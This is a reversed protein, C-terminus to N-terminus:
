STVYYALLNKAYKKVLRALRHGTCAQKKLISGTRIMQIHTHIHTHTQTHTDTHTDTHTHTHGGGLSKIVLPMIYHSISRM